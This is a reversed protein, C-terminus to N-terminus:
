GERTAPPAPSPMWYLPKPADFAFLGGIFKVNPKWNATQLHSGLMPEELWVQFVGVKPASDMGRWGETIQVRALRLDGSKIERHWLAYLTDKDTDASCFGRENVVAWAEYPVMRVSNASM